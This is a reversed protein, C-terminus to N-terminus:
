KTSISASATNDPPAETKQTELDYGELKYQKISGLPMVHDNYVTWSGYKM